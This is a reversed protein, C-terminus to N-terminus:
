LSLLPRDPGAPDTRLRQGARLKRFSRRIQRWLPRRGRDPWLTIDYPANRLIVEYSGSDRFSVLLVRESAGRLELLDPRGVVGRLAAGSPPIVPLLLAPDYHPGILEEPFDKASVPYESYVGSMQWGAFDGKGSRPSLARLERRWMAFPTGLCVLLAAVGGFVALRAPTSWDEAGALAGFAVGLPVVALLPIARRVM